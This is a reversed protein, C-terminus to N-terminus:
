RILSGVLELIDVLRMCGLLLGGLAGLPAFLIMAIIGTDVASYNGAVPRLLLRGSNRRGSVAPLAYGSR